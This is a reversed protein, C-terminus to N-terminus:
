TASARACLVIPDEVVDDLMRDAERRDRDAKSSPAPAARRGPGGAQRPHAAGSSSRPGRTAAAAPAARDDRRAPGRCRLSTWRGEAMLSRIEEAVAAGSHRAPGRPGQGDPPPDPGGLAASLEPNRARPPEPEDNVQQAMVAMPNGQFPLSDTLGEYLLVGLSYLDSRTDIRRGRAQEPSMYLPTGRAVGTEQDEDVLM